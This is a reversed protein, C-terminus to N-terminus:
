IKVIENYLLTQKAFWAWQYKLYALFQAIEISIWIKEYSFLISPYQM